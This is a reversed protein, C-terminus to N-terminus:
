QVRVDMNMKEHVAGLVTTDGRHWIIEVLFNCKWCMKTLRVTGYPIANLSRWEHCSGRNPLVLLNGLSGHCSSSLSTCTTM